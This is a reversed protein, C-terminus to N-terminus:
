SIVVQFYACSCSETRNVASLQLDQYPHQMFKYQSKITESFIGKASFPISSGPLSDIQLAPWAM